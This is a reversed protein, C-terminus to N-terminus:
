RAQRMGTADILVRKAEADAELARAFAPGDLYSVTQGFAQMGAEFRADRVGAACGGGRARAVDAPLNRPAIVGANTTALVDL